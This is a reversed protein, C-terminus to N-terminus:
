FIEYFISFFESFHKRQARSPLLPFNSVVQGAPSCTPGGRGGDNCSIFGAIPPGGM